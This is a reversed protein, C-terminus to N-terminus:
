SQGELPLGAESWLQKGGQFVRVARYGLEALRSAARQSNTCTPGSCYLVIETQLDGFVQAARQELDALPLHIAGPLHGSDYYRSPLVEAVTFQHLRNELEELEITRM